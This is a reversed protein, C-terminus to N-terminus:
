HRVLEELYEPAGEPLEDEKISGTLLTLNLIDRIRRYYMFLGSSHNMPMVEENEIEPVLYNGRVVKFNNRQHEPHKPDLFYFLYKEVEDLDKIIQSKRM